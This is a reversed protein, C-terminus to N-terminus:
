PRQSAARVGEEEDVMSLVWAGAVFLGLIALIASHSSGTVMVSITFIAPGFVTAFREAVAFFGFFESTRDRPILRSFLARSLAQAGGQVTAIMFALLFFHVVNTMFFALITALSYVGIAIFICRKTGIRSGLAGFMFAFPIGVFQVMVFAAIQSNQDIGVEAGYVGAMRIITQIGDQYLLMAIFM